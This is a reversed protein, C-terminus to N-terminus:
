QGAGSSGHATRIAQPSPRDDRYGLGPRYASIAVTVGVATDTFDGCYDCFAEILNTALLQASEPPAASASALAGAIGVVAALPTTQRM